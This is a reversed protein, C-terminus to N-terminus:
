DPCVQSIRTKKTHETGFSKVTLERSQEDLISLWVEIRDPPLLSMVKEAWEIITAGEGYFYDEYGLALFEDLSGIRYLDFHYVPIVGMYETIIIFSPSKVSEEVGLGLCIGQTLVTKGSGLEGMLGVLDGRSLQAGLRRGIERTEQPSRSVLTM